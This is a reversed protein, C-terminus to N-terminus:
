PRDSYIKMAETQIVPEILNASTVQAKFRVDGPALGKLRIQYIVDSRPALRPVPEFILLQGERHYRTAGQASKFEMKDPLACILKISTEMKSGMNTVLIEYTTDRGVEIADDAHSLELALSSYDEVRTVLEKKVEIKFGRESCATAIHRHDGAKIALLEFQIQRSQGPAMEGLFWSITQGPPGHQAGAASVLKFGAPIIESATVNSAQVEGRNMVRLTYTAKRDVYRLRPGTLEVELRPVVVRVTAQERAKEVGASEAVVQCKQEGGSRAMCVIQVTRSEGAGLDGVEFAVQKGRTYELGEPLEARVKVQGAPGDGGNSVTLVINAPDGAVVRQPASVKLVLKPEHVRIGLTASSLGTFSVFAQPHMEGKLSAVLELELHKEQRPLLSGLHWLVMDGDTSAKPRTEGVTMGSPLRVGVMVKQVPLHSTNRVRLRYPAKEGTQATPPGEWNVTVLSELRGVPLPAVASPFMPTRDGATATPKDAGPAANESGAETIVTRPLAPPAPLAPSSDVPLGSGPPPPPPPFSSHQGAGLGVLVAIVWSKIM